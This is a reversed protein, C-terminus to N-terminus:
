FWEWLTLRLWHTFRHTWVWILRREGADIKGVGEMGPRLYDPVEELQGEVRFVNRGDWAEALPTVRTVTLSMGSESGSRLVVTGTQGVEVSNIDREDVLLIVRYSDLPAIEFLVEGRAVPAGLSQSLDGSIVVGDFPSTAKMRALQEGALALQANAQELQAELVRVKAAQRGAVADRMQRELQLAESSWRLQELTLDRDDLQYLTQGQTIVDGARVEASDVFGDVPAVVAQLITSELRTDATVRYDTHYVAFFAIALLAFAMISKRVYYRQGFLKVAQQRLSEIGRRWWSQEARRKDHLLPGLVAVILELQELQSEAFEHESPWELTIAGFYQESGPLPISCVAHEAGEDFTALAKHAQNLLVAKDDFNPFVVSAQQDVSEDMACGVAQLVQMKNSFDSAGSVAEVRCFGKDCTGLSVRTCGQSTALENVASITAANFGEHELASATINLLKVLEESQAAEGTPLRRRYFLELWASSWRLGRMSSELTQEDAAALKVAILAVIQEQILVPYCLQSDQQGVEGVLPLVVAQKRALAEDVVNNLALDVPQESPWHSASVLKGTESRLMLVAASKVGQLQGLVRQLWSRAYSAPSDTSVFESWADGSDPKPDIGTNKDNNVADQM